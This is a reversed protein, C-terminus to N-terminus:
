LVHTTEEIAGSDNAAPLSMDSAQSFQAEKRSLLSGLDRGNFSAASWQDVAVVIDAVLYKSPGRAQAPTAIYDLVYQFATAIDRDQRELWKLHPALVTLSHTEHRVVLGHPPRRTEGVTKIKGIDHLVYVVKAIGAAHGDDELVSFVAYQVLDLHATSHVALGGPYAHHHRVSGRCRLFPIGISPDLLVRRLFGKMPGHLDAELKELQALARHAVTPCQSLPLLRAGQTITEPSEERIKCVHLETRGNFDHVRALVKVYSPAVLGECYAQHEAWVIGRVAGTSDELELVTRPRGSASTKHQISSLFYTGESLEGINESLEKTSISSLPM